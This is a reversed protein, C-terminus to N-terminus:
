LQKVYEMIKNRIENEQTESFGRRSVLTEPQYPIYVREKELLYGLQSITNLKDQREMRELELQQPTKTQSTSM